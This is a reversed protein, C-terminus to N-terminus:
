DRPSPSTYLLCAQRALGPFHESIHIGDVNTAIPQFEGRLEVPGEPKLDWTDQHAPGGWMFFLIVQRAKGFATPRESRDATTENARLVQNLGLGIPGIAGAQLMRRRNLSPGCLGPDLGGTIELM